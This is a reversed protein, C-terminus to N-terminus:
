FKIQAWIWTKTVDAARSGGRALNAANGDADYIGIKAGFTYHKKFTKTVLLDLEDGYDYDLNDSGIMHYSAIFKAGFAVAVATIYADEIGDPPTVLFRDTWGQFAHGTALPTLFANTGNGTLVEYDFKLVLSSLNGGPTFKFGAEGLFYDENVGAPNDGYDDQAAAQRPLALATVLAARV